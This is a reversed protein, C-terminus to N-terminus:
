RQGFVKSVLSIFSCNSRGQCVNACARVTACSARQDSGVFETDVISCVNGSVTPQVSLCSCAVHRSSRCLLARTEFEVAEM